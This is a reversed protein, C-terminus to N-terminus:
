DPINIKVPMPKLVKQYDLALQNVVRKAFRKSDPMFRINVLANPEYTTETKWVVPGNLGMLVETRIRSCSENACSFRLMGQGPSGYSLRDDNQLATRAYEMVEAPVNVHSSSFIGPEMDMVDFSHIQGLLSGGSLSGSNSVPVFGDPRAPASNVKKHHIHHFPNAAWGVGTTWVSGVLLGSLVFTLWATFPKSM